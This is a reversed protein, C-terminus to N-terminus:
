NIIKSEGWIRWIYIQSIYIQEICVWKSKKSVSIGMKKRWSTKFVDQLCTKLVDQLCIKFVDELCIKFVDQLCTKLVDRLRRWRLLKEDELVDELRRALHRWSAKSSWFNNRQLPTSSTKLVDELGVFTQQSSPTKFFTTRVFTVFNVTFCMFSGWLFM